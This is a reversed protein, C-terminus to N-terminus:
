RSRRVPTPGQKRSQLCSDPQITHWLKAGKSIRKRSWPMLSCPKPSRGRSPCTTNDWGIRPTFRVRESQWHTSNNPPTSVLRHLHNNQRCGQQQRPVVVYALVLFKTGTDDSFDRLTASLSAGHLPQDFTGRPHHVNYVDLRRKDPPLPSIIVIAFLIYRPLPLRSSTLPDCGDKQKSM